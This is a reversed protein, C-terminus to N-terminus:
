FSCIERATANRQSPPTASGRIPWRHLGLLVDIGMATTQWLLSIFAVRSTWTGFVQPSKPLHNLPRITTNICAAPQLSCAQEKSILKDAHMGGVHSQSPACAEPVSASSKPASPHRCHLVHGLPVYASFPVPASSRPVSPEQTTCPSTRSHSVPVSTCPVSLPRVAPRPRQAFGRRLRGRAPLVRVWCAVVVGRLTGVARRSPAPRLLRVSPLMAAAMPSLVDRSGCRKRRRCRGRPPTRRSRGAAWM